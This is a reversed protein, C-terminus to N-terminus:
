CSEATGPDLIEAAYLCHLRAGNDAHEDRAINRLLFAVHTSPSAPDATM